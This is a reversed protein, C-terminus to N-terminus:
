GRGGHGDPVDPRHIEMYQAFIEAIPIDTIKVKNKEILRLLLDLPGEFVELKYNVTEMM